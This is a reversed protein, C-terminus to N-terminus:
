TFIAKMSNGLELLHNCCSTKPALFSAILAWAATHQVAAINTAWRTLGTPVCSSKALKYALSMMSPTTWVMMQYAGLGHKMMSCKGDQHSHELDSAEWPWIFDTLSGATGRNHVTFSCDMTSWM